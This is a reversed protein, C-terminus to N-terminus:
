FNSSKVAIYADFIGPHNKLFNDISAMEPESFASPGSFIDSCPSTSSGTNGNEDPVM